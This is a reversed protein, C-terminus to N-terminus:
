GGRGFVRGAPTVVVPRPNRERLKNPTRIRTDLTRNDTRADWAPVVGIDTAAIGRVIYIDRRGDVTDLEIADGKCLHLVVEADATEPRMVIPQKRRLREQVDLRSAPTESWLEKSGKRVSAIVTHHLGDKDQMVYRRRHAADGVGKAKSRVRLRVRRIVVPPGNRNPLAPLHTPDAFVDVPRSKGTAACGKAYAEQVLRRVHPDVIKDSEIDATTLSGLSKRIVHFERGQEDVRPRSYFSDEHLRGALRRDLRHSVM